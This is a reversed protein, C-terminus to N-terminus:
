AGLVSRSLTSKKLISFVQSEVSAFVDAFGDPLSWSVVVPVGLKKSLRLAVNRGTSEADGLRTTVAPISSFETQTAMHFDDFDPNESSAIWLFLSRNPYSIAHVLVDGFDTTIKDIHIDMLNPFKKIRM